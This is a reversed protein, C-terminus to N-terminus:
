LEGLYILEDDNSAKTTFTDRWFERLERYEDQQLQYKLKRIAIREISRVVEVSIDLEEAIEKYSYTRM